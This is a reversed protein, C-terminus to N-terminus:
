AAVNVSFELQMQELASTAIGVISGDGVLELAPVSIGLRTDLEVRIGTAMLSDVGLYELPLCADLQDSPMKLERAFIESVLGIVVQHRHEVALSTLEARLRAQVSDDAQVRAQEVLDRFRASRAGYTEYGAWKSWDPDAAICIQTTGSFIAREMGNLATHFPIPALGIQRLQQAISDDKALMGVKEVAGFNISLGALNRARRFHALTDLFGNAACYNAQKSNGVLVSISSFLVFHDLSLHKTALHLNWAGLAKPQLVRQLAGDSMERIPMDEIIGATHFIGRLELGSEDLGSILQDVQDSDALDCQQVSVASGTKELERLFASDGIGNGASRGCLVIHGAGHGALWKATERGLGGFGGTVIYAASGLINPSDVATAVLPRAFGHNVRVQDLSALQKRDQLIFTSLDFIEGVEALNQESQAELMAAAFLDRNKLMEVRPDIRVMRGVNAECQLPVFSSSLDILCGGDTLNSFGFQREWAGLPAAIADIRGWHVLRELEADSWNEPKAPFLDVEISKKDFHAALMMGLATSCVLVRDGPVLSSSDAIRRALAQLTITNAAIDASIENDVPVLLSQEPTVRVHSSLTVPVLGCLRDGVRIRALEEGVRSVRGCVSMLETESERLHTALTEGPISFAEIALELERCGLRGPLAAIIGNEDPTSGIRLDFRHKKGPELQVEPAGGFTGSAELRSIYRGDSRLAIEDKEDDALLEAVLGGLLADDVMRPLDITTPQMGGLENLAVRTMGVLAGQGPVPSSDKHSVVFADRTIVYLRPTDNRAELTQLTKLLRSTARLGAPDQSGPLGASALFAVADFEGSALTDISKRDDWVELHSTCHIERELREHLVAGVSCGEDALLLWRHRSAAKAKLPDRHWTYVYDGAPYERASSRGQLSSCVLGSVSAILDGGDDILALDCEVKRRTRKTLVGHCWFRTAGPRYIRLDRIATPLFAGDSPDLLNLVTQFCGDLLTPHIIYDRASDLLSEHLQVRGLVEGGDSGLRAETITQFLPKYELSFKAFEQYIGAAQRLNSVRELMAAIDACGAGRGDLPFIRSHAHSSIQTPTHDDFSRLEIRRGNDSVFTELYLPKSRDLVLAKDITIDALRWSGTDEPAQAAAANLMVELYAAAPMISMGDVVHDFLYNLRHDALDVQWAASGPKRMGLLPREIDAIRDHHQHHSEIWLPQRQWPYNPLTVPCGVPHRVSWDLSGGQAFLDAVARRLSIVEPQKQNLTQVTRADVGRESFIEQLAGRLVPHPGVEVFISYGDDLMSDITKAFFVPDRVNKCWYGADYGRGHLQEGTVTSYLPLTPEQPNLAALTKMLEPKLSEMLPSHYPVEVKLPRAFINRSDLDARIRDLCSQDGSLTISRTSNVAAVSVKGLDEAIVELAQEYGLGVALMGGTGAAKAQARSRCHSVLLADHLSLTGSAWASAIEGVSHGVVAAANLGEARMAQTLAYQVIFNAPQAFQTQHIRSEGAEKMMEDRISIGSIARYIENALDVAERFVSNVRYLEQGMGWWQPGMGTYVFVPGPKGKAPQTGHIANEAMGQAAFTELGDILDDRTEGWVALRNSLHARRLSLSYLIDELTSEESRLLQVCSLALSRLAQDDRASLPLLQFDHHRDASKCSSLWETEKPLSLIVHANTGGYGFSNIAIRRTEKRSALVSKGVALALGNEGFPIAPNPQQLTALAPIENQRLMLCAKIVAAIGAAAELHGINNKVSGIVCPAERDAGYVTSIASAEIPDGVPTGTGHAEVYQVRQPDIGAKAVARRMLAVQSKPNPVTIGKTRGDQNVVAADVVALIQDCSELARRLPKLVVVGAGEGRGYGDGRADFSKSRGDRALFQGKSMAIPYEPRLMFNVGGALAINCAGACIDQVAYSFAVLSSSCATDISISPGRFDYAYSIRNSLMTLTAGAASHAGIESRGGSGLQNLMHDVTFGGMYVGVETGALATPDLGSNEMAEWSVELLLRQQPDMYEVERPAFHFFGADFSRYDWDIFHGKRVYSKAAADGSENYFREVQWREPPIDSVVNKAQSLINWFEQPSNAGGPLRCGIGVIAVKDYLNNMPEGGQRISRNRETAM